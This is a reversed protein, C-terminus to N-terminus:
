TSRCVTPSTVFFEGQYGMGRAKVKLSEAWNWSLLWLVDCDGDWYAPGGQDVMYWQLSPQQIPIHLGPSLLGAKEPVDDLIVAPWVANGRSKLANLFVAGKASAGYAWLRKGEDQIKQLERMTEMLKREVEVAFRKYPREDIPLDHVPHSEGTRRKLWYRKSGGHIDRLSEVRDIGLGAQQACRSMAKASWYSLHEHYITDFHGHVVMDRVSPVEVIAVGNPALVQEAAKLFGVPDDVHGLVNQATIVNFTEGLEIPWFGEYIGPGCPSPDVGTVSWGKAGFAQMCMGDNAAIDLMKGPAGCKEALASCHERWRVSAGSRFRYGAYLIEPDVVVTLQSLACTPCLAVALPAHIEETGVHWLHNLRSITDTAKAPEVLANALPQCGLDIYPPPLETACVRCHTHPKVLPM